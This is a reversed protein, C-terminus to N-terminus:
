ITVVDIDYDSLDHSIQSFPEEPDIYGANLIHPADLASPRSM